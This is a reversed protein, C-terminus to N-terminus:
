NAREEKFVEVVVEELNVHIHIMFTNLILVSGFLNCCFPLWWGEFLMGYVRYFSNACCHLRIFLVQLYRLLMM